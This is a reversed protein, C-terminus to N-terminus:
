SDLLGAQSVMTSPRPVLIIRVLMMCSLQTKGRSCFASLLSVIGPNRYYIHSGCKCHFISQLKPPLKVLRSLIVYPPQDNHWLLSSISALCYIVLWSFYTLIIYKSYIYVNSQSVHDECNRVHYNTFLASKLVM